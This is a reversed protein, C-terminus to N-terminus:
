PNKETNEPKCCAEADEENDFKEDCKDCIWVPTDKDLGDTYDNRACTFATEDLELLARGSSYKMGCITVDGYIDDLIKVFERDNLETEKRYAKM